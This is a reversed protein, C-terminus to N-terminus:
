QQRWRGDKFIYVEDEYTATPAQSRRGTIVDVPLWQSELWIAEKKDRTPTIAYGM